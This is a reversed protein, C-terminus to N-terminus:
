LPALIKRAERQVKWIRGRGGDSLFRRPENLKDGLDLYQYSKDVSERARVAGRGGLELARLCEEEKRWSNLAQSLPKIEEGFRARM